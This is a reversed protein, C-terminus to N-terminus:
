LQSRKKARMGSGCEFSRLEQAFPYDGNEFPTSRGPVTGERHLGDDFSRPAFWAHHPAVVTAKKETVM